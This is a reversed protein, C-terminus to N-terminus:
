KGGKKWEEGEQGDRWETYEAQSAEYMADRANQSKQLGVARKKAKILGEFGESGLFRKAPFKPEGKDDRDVGDYAQVTWRCVNGDEDYQSSYLSIHIDGVSYRYHVSVRETKKWDDSLKPASGVDHRSRKKM